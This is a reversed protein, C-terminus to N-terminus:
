EFIISRGEQESGYSAQRTDRVNQRIDNLNRAGQLLDRGVPLLDDGLNFDPKKIRDVVKEGIEITDSLKKGYELGKKIGAIGVLAARGYPNTALLPTAIKLGMDVIPNNLLKDGIRVGAKLVKKGLNFGTKVKNGIWSFFGM